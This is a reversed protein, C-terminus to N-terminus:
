RAQDAYLAALQGRLTDTGPGPVFAPITTFAELQDRTFDALLDRRGDQIAAIIAKGRVFVPDVLKLQGHPDAMVNGPRIDSGGWLRYRRAGEALLGLLRERLAALDADAQGDSVAVEYGSDNRIGLDACFAAAAAEDAAFLREMMVVYGDGRLPLVAQMHPLWRNPPGALCTEAHMRYAPDFPTVRAAWGGAADTLVWSWDGVGIQRWGAAQLLALAEAASANAPIAPHRIM